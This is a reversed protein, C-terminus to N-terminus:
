SPIKDGSNLTVPEFYTAYENDYGKVSAVKSTDSWSVKNVTFTGAPIPTFRPYAEGTDVDIWTRYSKWFRNFDAAEGKCIIPAENTITELVNNCFATEGEGWLEINAFVGNPLTIEKLSTLNAFMYLVDSISNWNLNGLGEIQTLDKMNQFMYSIKVLPLSKMSEDIKATVFTERVSDLKWATEDEFSLTPTGDAEKYEVTTYQSQDYAVKDYTFLM